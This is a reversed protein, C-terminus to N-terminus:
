RVAIITPLTAGVGESQESVRRNSRRGGRPFKGIARQFIFIRWTPSFHNRRLKM